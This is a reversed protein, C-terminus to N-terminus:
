SIEHKSREMDEYWKDLWRCQDCDGVDDICEWRPCDAYRYGAHHCKPDTCDKCFNTRTCKGIKLM